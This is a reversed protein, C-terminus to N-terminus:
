KLVEPDQYMERDLRWIVVYNGKFKGLDNKGKTKNFCEFDLTHDIVYAVPTERKSEDIRINMRRCENGWRM